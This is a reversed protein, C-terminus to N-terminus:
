VFVAISGGCLLSSKSVRLCEVGAISRVVWYVADMATGYPTQRVHTRRYSGDTQGARDSPTSNLWGDYATTWRAGSALQDLADTFARLRTPPGLLAGDRCEPRLRENVLDAGCDSCLRDTSKILGGPTTRLKNREAGVRRSATQVEGTAAACVTRSNITTGAM